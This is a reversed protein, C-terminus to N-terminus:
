DDNSIAAPREDDMGDGNDDNCNEGQLGLSSSIMGYVAVGATLAPIIFFTFKNQIPAVANAKHNRNM